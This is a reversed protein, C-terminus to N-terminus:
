GYKLKKKQEYKQHYDEAKSYNKEKSVQTVVKGNLKENVENLVKEAISKEEDTNYFIESRYQFGVNVGQRNKTTPDHIKFFLRVLDEYSIVKEDFEVKVVEIHKTDGGCVAKYTINPEDGGCYGCETSIVGPINEYKTEDWFCGIGGIFTRM